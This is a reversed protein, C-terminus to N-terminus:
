GFRRSSRSRERAQIILRPTIFHHAVTLAVFGWFMVYMPFTFHNGVLGIVVLAAHFILMITVCAANSLGNDMLRHHLHDRGAKLPSQGRLVRGVMVSISDMLPLGFIWGAVVPTIYPEAGQSMSIYYSALVIGLFMSGSDGLFVKQRKGMFGTNFLLFAITAGMVTLLGSILFGDTSISSAIFVLGAISITVVGGALGDAGDIMNIANVVGIVCIISFTIAVAGGMIVPQEGMLNGISLIQYDGGLVLIAAASAQFFLRSQPSLDVYDDTMGVLLLLGSAAIVAVSFESAFHMAVYTLFISAGGVLPIHGKHQKRSTPKDVLGFQKGVSRTIRLFVVCVSMAVMLTVIPPWEDVGLLNM